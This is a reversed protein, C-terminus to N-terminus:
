LRNIVSQFKPLLIKDNYCKIFKDRPNTFNNGVNNLCIEDIISALSEPNGPECCWGLNHETVAMSIESEFDMIALIPKGAALSFYSKSPVGLGLMDKGLSVMTVDCAALGQSKELMDLTGFHILNTPSHENIYNIVLHSHSGKGIFIFRANEAEVLRIAALINEIDQLRGMNGFYQFVTFQTNWNLSKLIASNERKIAEVDDVSVWNQIVDIDTNTFQTLKTKMDRGIVIIQDASDYIKKFIFELSHRLFGNTINQSVLLNFPYLDHVLLVWKLRKFRKLIPLFFLLLIPNTGTIIIENSSVNRVTNRILSLSVILLGILRPFFSNSLQQPRVVIHNTRTQTSDTSIVKLCYKDELFCILKEFMYGTTNSKGNVFQTCITINKEYDM